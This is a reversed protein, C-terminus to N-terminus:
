RSHVTCCIYNLAIRDKTHPTEMAIILSADHESLVSSQSQESGLSKVGNKGAIKGEDASGDGGFFFFHNESRTDGAMPRIM